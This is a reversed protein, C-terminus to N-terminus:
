FLLIKLSLIQYQTMGPPVQHWREVKSSTPLTPSKLHHTMSKARTQVVIIGKTEIIKIHQICSSSHTHFEHVCLRSFASQSYGSIKRSGGRLPPEPTLFPFVNIVFTGVSFSGNAISM